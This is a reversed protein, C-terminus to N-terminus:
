SVYRASRPNLEVVGAVLRRNTTKVVTKGPAVHVALAHHGARVRARRRRARVIALAIAGIALLGCIVVVAASAIAIGIGISPIALAASWAIVHGAFSEAFAHDRCAECVLVEIPTVDLRDTSLNMRQRRETAADCCVCGPPMAPLPAKGGRILGMVLDHPSLDPDYMTVTYRAGAPKDPITLAM